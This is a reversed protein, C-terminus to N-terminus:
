LKGEKNKDDEVKVFIVSKKDSRAHHNCCGTNYTRNVQWCPPMQYDFYCGECSTENKAREVRLKIGDFDFVEGIARGM